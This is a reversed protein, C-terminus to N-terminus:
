EKGTASEAVLSYASRPVCPNFALIFFAAALRGFVHVILGNYSRVKSAMQIGTKEEIWNFLSEIPQRVRSIATSLLQDAFALESQGKKKKVPTYLKLNQEKELTQNLTQDAYIKDGYLEGDHLQPLISRLATLDNEAGPTLGIYDPKPMRSERKLGLIHLKVGYYWMDKSSCYGKNALEDAVRASGSRRGNALIIPMSDVVRIQALVGQNPFDELIQEVLAPFAAFLRNLRQVYGGYSPLAPFWDHLHDQIYIYIDQVQTRKQIIGFLYITLVEEDTLDPDANNSLRQGYMWLHTEYHQCIYVYLSILQDQWNM